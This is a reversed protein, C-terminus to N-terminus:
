LLNKKNKERGGHILFIFSFGEEQFSKPKLAIEISFEGKTSIHEHILDTISDTYAISNKEFRIGPRDM